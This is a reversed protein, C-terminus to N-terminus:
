SVLRAGRRRAPGAAGLDVGSGNLEAWLDDLSLGLVQAVAAVTPFAPTAM